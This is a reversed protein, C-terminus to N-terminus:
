GDLCMDPVTCVTYTHWNEYLPSVFVMVEAYVSSVLAGSRTLDEEARRQREGGDERTWLAMRDDNEPM